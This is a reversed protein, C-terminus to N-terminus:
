LCVRPSIQSHSKITTDRMKQRTSGNPLNSELQDYFVKANSVSKSVSTTNGDGSYSAPFSVTAFDNGRGAPCRPAGGPEQNQPIVAPHSQAGPVLPERPDVIAGPPNKTCPAAVLTRNATLTFTYSASAGVVGGNETWNAFTFGSNAIATVTRSSGSAFTGGGSVTGGASPLM